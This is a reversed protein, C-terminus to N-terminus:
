VCPLGREVEVLAAALEYRAAVPLWPLLEQWHRRLRAYPLLPSREILAKLWQDDEPSGDSM